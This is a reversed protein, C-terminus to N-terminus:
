YFGSREEIMEERDIDKDLVEIEREIWRVVGIDFGAGLWQRFKDRKRKLYASTSGTWGGSQFAASISRQVKEIYGYKELLERTLVGGNEDDFTRLAAHAVIPAREEPNKDVWDLIEAIPLDEIAGGIQKDGFEDEEFSGLGGKLWQFIDRRYHPLSKEFHLRIIGWAGSPNLRVLENALSVIVFDYSLHYHKEMKILILDLLPLVYSDDWEILKHCINEWYETIIGTMEEKGPVCKSIVEFIFEPGFLCSEGFPMPELLEILVSLSEDSNQSSLEHLLNKLKQKPVQEISMSYRISTFQRSGVWRNSLANLCGEFLDDNYDTRLALEAGLWATDQNGLFGKVVSIYLEFDHKRIESLYGYLCEHRKAELAVKILEPLLARDKDNKALQEVFLNLGLSLNGPSLLHRIEVIKKPCRAIRKALAIVLAKSRNRSKNHRERFGEDWEVWGINLVYRQFRSELNRQTYRRQLPLMRRVIEHYQDDDKRERWHSFFRNLKSPSMSSDDVLTRLVEFALDTCRPISIQQDVVDLLTDCVESRLKNPWNKTEVILAQFYVFFAEWWEEHTDPIWLKAREKLGQYEPGVIRVGRYRSLAAKAAKLGLRREDDTQARLLRLFVPLRDQPSAETVAWEPGIYFLDLLTGTSNNSNNANEDVSFRNLLLM